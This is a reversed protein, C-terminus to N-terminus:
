RRKRRRADNDWHTYLGLATIGTLLASAAAGPSPEPYFAATKPLTKPLTEPLTDPLTEPLTDPLTRPLEGISPIQLGRNVTGFTRPDM